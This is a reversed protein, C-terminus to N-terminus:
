AKPIEIWLMGNLYTASIGAKDADPPLEVERTFPGHDIEMLHVRMKHAHPEPQDAPVPGAGAPPHAGHGGDGEHGGARGSAKAGRRAPERAAPAAAPPEEPEYTPVARSGRLKLRQDAVEVDIKEKQVGALDVCVLYTAATEYLNVNPTWTDSSYVYFGKQMQDMM